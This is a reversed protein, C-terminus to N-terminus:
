HKLTYQYIWIEWKFLSQTNCLVKPPMGEDNFPVIDLLQMRTARLLNELGILLYYNLDGSKKITKNTALDNVYKLLMVMDDSM